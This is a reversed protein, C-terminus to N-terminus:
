AVRAPRQLGGSLHLLDIPHAGAAPPMLLEAVIDCLEWVARNDVQRTRERLAPLQALLEQAGERVRRLSGIVVGLGQDRVWHENWREQPM